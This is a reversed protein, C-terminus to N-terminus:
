SARPAGPPTDGDYAFKMPLKPEGARGDSTSSRLIGTATDNPHYMWLKWREWTTPNQSVGTHIVGYLVDEIMTRANLGFFQPLIRRYWGTKALHPRQSWKQHRLLPVGCVDRPSEDMMLYRHEPFVHPFIHLTVVNVEDSLTAKILGDFDIQNVPFTDHEQYFVLPTQVLELARRLMGSQHMHEDFVLPLCGRFDSHFSCLDLLRRKYEEYAAERHRHNEHLGDIMIIVEADKLAQYSRTQRIAYELMDTSPHAPISSTPMLVTVPSNPTPEGALGKADEMLSLAFQWKYGQWWANAKNAHQQAMAPQANYKDILAPLEAWNDVTPFPEQGLVLRWYSSRDPWVPARRDCIPLCGAEIAEYLRFTDPTFNGSPCPAIASDLLTQLHQERPKGLSFGPTVLLDGDSRKRLEGICQERHRNNVQGGFAWRNKREALCIRGKSRIVEHTDHQPGLLFKRDHGPGDPRPTQVWVWNLKHQFRSLDYRNEEDSTQIVLCWPLKNVIDALGDIGHRGIWPGPVVLVAGEGQALDKVDFVEEFPGISPWLKGEQAQTLLGHDWFGRAKNPWLFRM